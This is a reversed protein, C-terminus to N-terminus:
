RKKKTSKKPPAEPEIPASTKASLRRHLGQLTAELVKGLVAAGEPTLGASEDRACIEDFFVDATKHTAALVAFVHWAYLDTNGRLAQGLADESLGVELSIERQTRTAGVIWARLVRRAKDLIFATSPPVPPDLHRAMREIEAISRRHAALGEPEQIPFHREFFAEPERGIVELAGLVDKMKLELRGAFVRTLYQPARELAQSVETARTQALHIEQKLAMALRRSAAKAMAQAETSM